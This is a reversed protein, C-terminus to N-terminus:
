PKAVPSPTSTGPAARLDLVVKGVRTPADLRAYAAAIDELPYESDVLPKWGATSVHDLLAAFDAPSGMSSGLIDVQKWYVTQVKVSATEAAMRGVVVLRGGARVSQLIPQWLAGTPDLGLDAEGGTATALDRALDDSTRLVVDDAGLARASVAGEPSSTIAVVRAGLGKAVQIAMSGVGSSAAAVVATEGAALRGRTVLARWATLGAMPLAAAESWTLTNPKPYVNEAPVAVLQAHTGSTPSGLIEYAPGPAAPSPGWHLSPSIIVHAGVDVGTAGDGVQRVIGAGDSGLIAPGDLLGRETLTMADLRNLAAKELEVLVEGSGLVPAPVDAVRIASRTADNDVLAARL